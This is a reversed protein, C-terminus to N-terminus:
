LSLAPGRVAGVKKTTIAKSVGGKPKLNIAQV